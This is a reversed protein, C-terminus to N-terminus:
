AHHAEAYPGAFWIALASFGVGFAIAACAFAPSHGVFASGASAGSCFVAGFFWPLGRLRRKSSIATKANGVLALAQGVLAAPGSDGGSDLSSACAVCWGSLHTVGPQGARPSLHKKRACLIRDDVWVLPAGKAQPEHCNACRSGSGGSFLGYKQREQEDQFWQAIRRGWEEETPVQPNM